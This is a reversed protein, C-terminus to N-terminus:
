PDTFNYELNYVKELLNSVTIKFQLQNSGKRGADGGKRQISIINDLKVVTKGKTITFDLPELYDIIDEIKMLVIKNRKKGIYEVGFLYKPQTESNTGNFIYNLIHRKHNNLLSIFKDLDEQPYNDTSIKKIPKSKDIHTGNPLLPYECLNKLITSCEEIGPIYKIFDDVWHRDLQQFQGKKYKKVQARLKQNNSKIDSKTNGTIKSCEDYDDGLIPEFKIKIATNTNLDICVNNEEKYGNKAAESNIESLDKVEMKIDPREKIVTTIKTVDAQQEGPTLFIGVQKEM